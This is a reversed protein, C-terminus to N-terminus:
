ALTAAAITTSSTMVHLTCTSSDSDVVIVIDGAKMGFRAGDSFYSAADVDTHADNTTYIWISPGGSVGSVACKLGANSYSM